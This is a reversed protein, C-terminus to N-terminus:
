PKTKWYKLAFEVGAKDTKTEYNYFLIDGSNLDFVAFCHHYRMLYRKGDNVFGWWKPKPKFEQENLARIICKV